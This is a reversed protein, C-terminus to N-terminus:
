ISARAKLEHWGGAIRSSADLSRAPLGNRRIEGNRRERLPALGPSGAPSNRM